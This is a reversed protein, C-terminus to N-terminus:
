DHLAINVDPFVEIGVSDEGTAGGHVWSNSVPHLLLDSGQSGGGHLDLDNCRRLPFVRDPDSAGDKGREGGELLHPDALLLVILRAGGNDVPLTELCM